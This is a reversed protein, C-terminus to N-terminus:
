IIECKGDPDAYVLIYKADHDTQDDLLYDSLVAKNKDYRTVRMIEAKGDVSTKLVELLFWFAPYNRYFEAVESGAVVKGILDSM